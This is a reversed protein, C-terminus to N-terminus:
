AQEEAEETSVKQLGKLSLHKTKLYYLGTFTIPIYQSAHLVLAFALSVNKDYGYMALSFVCASQFTGIYGPASPIMIMLSVIVLLVFSAALPPHLDFALFIFYNSIGMVAWILISWFLILLIGRISRFVKLGTIFKALVEKARQSLKMPLFRLFIDIFKLTSDPRLELFVLIALAVLNILLTINAVIKIEKTLPAFVLVFWLVVLLSFADFVREVVITAFAASKSINEQKGLSYARVFEGIRLPFVNNAMFGIMTSPFLSNMGIRKIPNVMYRWRFARLWFALLVLIMNPIVYIYKANKLVNWLEPFDVKRFAFYLFVLSLFIAILTRKKLEKGRKSSIGFYGLNGRGSKGL